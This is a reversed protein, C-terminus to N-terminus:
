GMIVVRHAVETAEGFMITVESINNIIVDALIQQYSDSIEYIAVIVDKTGLNHAFTMSETGIPIDFAKTNNTGGGGGSTTGSGIGGASVEETSYFNKDVKLANNTADWSLTADGIKLTQGTPILAGANFKTSVGFISEYANIKLWENGYLGLFLYSLYSNEGVLFGFGGLRSGSSNVAYYGKAWTGTGTTLINSLHNAIDGQIHAGGVVQLGTSGNDIAGGVLLRSSINATGAVYLGYGKGVTTYNGISVNGSSDIFIGRDTDQNVWFSADMSPLYGIVSKIEGSRKIAIRPGDGHNSNVSLVDRSDGADVDLKYAPNTTGIGVNGSYPNLCLSGTSNGYLPDLHGVQISATRENTKGGVFFSMRNNNNAITFHSNGTGNWVNANGATANLEAVSKNIDSKISQIGNVFLKNSEGALDSAGITVNGSSNLMLGTEHQTGYRLYVYNGDVFTSFGAKAGQNGLLFNGTTGTVVNAYYNDGVKWCLGAASGFEIDSTLAIKGVFSTTGNDDISVIVTGNNKTLKHAYEVTGDTFAVTKWDQWATTNKYRVFANGYTDLALQYAYKLEENYLTLGTAYNHSSPRNTAQFGSHFFKNESANDLNNVYESTFGAARGSIGINWTGSAGTGDLKPAYSNYNGSHLLSDENYYVGGSRISFLSSEGYQIFAFDRNSYGFYAKKEDGSKFVIYLGNATNSNHIVLPEFAVSSITGGSLPLYGAANYPAYVTSLVSAYNNDDLFRRWGKNEGDQVQQWWIDGGVEAQIMARFNWNAGFAIASGNARWGGFPYGYGIKNHASVSGDIAISDSWYVGDTIGYGGLTTAKNAKKAVEENIENLVQSLTVDGSYTDLFQKLENLNELVADADVDGELFADVKAQVANLQEALGLLNDGVNGDLSGIIGELRKIDDMYAADRWGDTTISKDGVYIRERLHATGGGNNFYKRGVKLDTPDSSDNQITFRRLEFGCLDAGNKLKMGAM